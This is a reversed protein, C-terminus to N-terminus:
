CNSRGSASFGSSLEDRRLAIAIIKSCNIRLGSACGIEDIVQLVAKLEEPWRLYIATDDAYGAVHLAITKCETALSIGRHIREEGIISITTRSTPHLALTDCGAKCHVTVSATRCRTGNALFRVTTDEHLKQVVQVFHLPCGHRLLVAYM